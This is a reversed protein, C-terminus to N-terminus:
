RDSTCSREDNRLDRLADPGLKASDLFNDLGREIVEQQQKLKILSKICETRESSRM